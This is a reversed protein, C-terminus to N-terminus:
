TNVTEKEINYDRSDSSKSVVLVPVTTESILKKTTSGFLEETRDPLNRHGVIAMRADSSELHESLRQVISGETQILSTRVDLGNGSIHDEAEALVSEGEELSEEIDENYSDGNTEINPSACYVLEVPESLDKAIEVAEDVAGTRYTTTDVLVSITM